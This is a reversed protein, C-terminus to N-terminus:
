KNLDAFHGFHQALLKRDPQMLKSSPISLKKGHFRRYQADSVSVSVRVRLNKDVAIRYSDFLNHLDARLLLGNRTGHRGKKSVPLIHAAVLAEPESAGSIACVDGYAARIKSRFEAQGLRQLVEVRSHRVAKDTSSTRPASKLFKQLCRLTRPNALHVAGPVWQEFDEYRIQSEAEQLRLTLANDIRIWVQYRHSYNEYKPNNRTPEPESDLVGVALIRKTDWGAYIWVYDYLKVKKFSTSLGWNAWLTGRLNKKTLNEPRVLFVRRDDRTGFQAEWWTGERIDLPYIWHNQRKAM